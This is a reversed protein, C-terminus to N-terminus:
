VYNRWFRYFKEQGAGYIEPRAALTFGCWALWRRAARNDAHVWNELRAFRAQMQEVYGRCRRAFASKVRMIEPTSLLWPRGTDSLLSGARAVGWMFAPRGEILCTWALASAALSIRLAEEPLHRHAARIERKDEERLCAALHPIHEEKAPVIQWIRGM